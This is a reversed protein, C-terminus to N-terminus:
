PLQSLDELIERIVGGRVTMRAPTALDLVLTPQEYTLETADSGRYLQWKGGPLVRVLALSNEINEEEMAQTIRPVMQECKHCGERIFFIHTSAFEALPVQDALPWERDLLLPNLYVDHAKYADQRVVTGLGVFLACALGGIARRRLLMPARPLRPPSLAVFSVLFIGDILLVYAGNTAKGFCHCDTESALFGLAISFLCLFASIGLLRSWYRPLGVLLVILALDFVIPVFRLFSIAPIPNHSYVIHMAEIVKSGAAFAFICVAALVLLDYIVTSERAFRM